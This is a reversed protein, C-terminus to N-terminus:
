AVRRTAGHGQRNAPGMLTAFKGFGPGMITAVPLARAAREM